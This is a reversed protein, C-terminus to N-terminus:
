DGWVRANGVAEDAVDRESSCRGGREQYEAYFAEIGDVVIRVMTQDGVTGALVKDTMEALHLVAGGRRIGAYKPPTADRFTEEFGCQEVWWRLSAAVDAAPLVAIVAKM